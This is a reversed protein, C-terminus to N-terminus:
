FFGRTASPQLRPLRLGVRFMNNDKRVTVLALHGYYANLRKKLSDLGMKEGKLSRSPSEYPNAIDIFLYERERTVSISLTGGELRQGIGHKIANEVLPLLILPLVPEPLVNENVHFDVKLRDGLREEEIALYNSIHDVEDQVTVQQKKGYRLSYVLFESFRGVFAQAREPSIRLLPGIMNLSNFLFHPHITTKLANLEAQSAFLKQNLIEQENFRITENAVVLYYVLVTIFYISVGAGLFIPISGTFLKNWTDSNILLDLINSYVLSILMWIANIVMMSLFHIVMSKLLNRRDLEIAKCLYWLSLSIFFYLILPPTVLIISTIWPVGALNKHIFIVWFCLPSWLLGMILFQRPSRTFPHAM